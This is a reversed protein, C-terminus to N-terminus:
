TPNKTSSRSNQTHYKTSIKKSKRKTM